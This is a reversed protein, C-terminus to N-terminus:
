VYNKYKRKEDLRVFYLFFLCMKFPLSYFIAGLKTRFSLTRKFLVKYLYKRIYKQMTIIEVSFKNSDSLTMRKVNNVSNKYKTYFFQKAIDDSMTSDRHEIYSFARASLQGVSQVVTNIASGDRQLYHYAYLPKYVVTKAKKFAFYNMVLDEGCVIKDDIHIDAIINKKYIKDWLSWGFNKCKLMEILASTTNFIKCKNIGSLAKKTHFNNYELLYGGIGIDANNYKMYEILENYARSEIWDDPDLFTIYEGNSLQLAKERALVVGENNKHVVRIRSDKKAYADCIKGSSDTSGDDVIILEFDKVEQHLVSGISKNLFKKVNYVPMVISLLPM